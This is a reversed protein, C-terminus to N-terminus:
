CTPMEEEGCRRSLYEGSCSSKEIASFCNLHRSSGVESGDDWNSNEVAGREDAGVLDVEVEADCEYM